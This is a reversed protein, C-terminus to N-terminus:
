TEQSDMGSLLQNAVISILRQSHLFGM